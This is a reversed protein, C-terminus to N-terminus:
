VLYELGVLGVVRPQQLFGLLGVRVLRRFAARDRTLDFNAPRAPPAAEDAPALEPHRLREWEELLSSDIGRILERFYVELEVVDETKASDPVTQALVKWTQSLHRLLLGESRQLGYDKVYDAFSRYGEYMERAISKPRVNEGELWPHAAAFANFTDYM